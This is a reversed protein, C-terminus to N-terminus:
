WRWNKSRPTLGRAVAECASRQRSTPAPLGYCCVPASSSIPPPTSLTLLRRFTISSTRTWTWTRRGTVPRQRSVARTITVGDCVGPAMDGTSLPEDPLALRSINGIVYVVIATGCHLSLRHAAMAICLGLMLRAPSSWGQWSQRYRSLCMKCLRNHNSRMAM